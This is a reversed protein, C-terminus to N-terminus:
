WMHWQGWTVIYIGLILNTIGHAVVCNWFKGTRIMLASVFSFWVVAAVAESPHTAVGYIAAAVCGPLGVASLAVSYWEQNEVFRVLWGRLFLEEVIPVVGVLLSFRFLLFVWRWNDDTLQRFPDFGSREPLIWALGVGDLVTKEIQLNCISIWLAGGVIGALVGWIDFRLPFHRLYIRHFGVIFILGIVVQSIVLYVFNRADIDDISESSV